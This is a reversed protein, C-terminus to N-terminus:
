NFKIVWAYSSEWPHKKGYRSHWEEKFAVDPRFLLDYTMNPDAIFGADFLSCYENVESVRVCEVSKVTPHHRVAVVPMNIAPHWVINDVDNKDSVKYLFHIPSSKFFLVGWAEKLPVVDGPRYPPNRSHGVGVGGPAPRHIGRFRGDPMAYVHDVNPGFSDKVPRVVVKLRGEARATAERANLFIPYVM